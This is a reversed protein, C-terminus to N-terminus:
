LTCKEFEVEALKSLRSLAGAPLHGHAVDSGGEDVHEWSDQDPQQMGQARRLTHVADALAGAIDQASSGAHGERSGDSSDQEAVYMGEPSVDARGGRSISDDMADVKSMDPEAAAATGEGGPASHSPKRGGDTMGSSHLMSEEPDQKALDDAAAGTHQVGAPQLGATPKDAEEGPQCAGQASCSAASGSSIAEPDQHPEGGGAQHTKNAVGGSGAAEAAVLDHQATQQQPEPQTAQGTWTVSGGDETQTHSLAVDSDGEPSVIDMPTEETLVDLLANEAKFGDQKTQGAWTVTGGEGSQTHQLGANQGEVTADPQAEDPAEGEESQGAQQGAPPEPQGSQGGWMIVGGGELQVHTLGSDSVPVTRGEREACEADPLSSHAGCLGASSDAEAPEANGLLSSADKLEESTSASSTKKEEWLSRLWGAIGKGTAPAQAYVATGLTDDHTTRSAVHADREADTMAALSAYQLLSYSSEWTAAAQASLSGAAGCLYTSTYVTASCASTATQKLSHLGINASDLALYVASHLATLQPQQCPQWTACMHLWTGAQTWAGTLPARVPEPVLRMVARSSTLLQTIVNSPKAPAWSAIHEVPHLKGSMAEPNELRLGHQWSLQQVAELASSIPGRCNPCLRDLMSHVHHMATKAPGGCLQLVPSILGKVCAAMSVCKAHLSLSAKSLVLAAASIGRQNEGAAAAMFCALEESFHVASGPQPRYTYAAHGAALAEPALMHQICRGFSAAGSGYAGSALRERGNPSSAAIHGAAFLAAPSIVLALLAILQVWHSLKWDKQPHFSAQKKPLSGEAISSPASHGACSLSGRNLTGQGASM